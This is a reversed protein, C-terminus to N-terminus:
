SRGDLFKGGLQRELEQLKVRREQEDMLTWTRLIARAALMTFAAVAFVTGMTNNM